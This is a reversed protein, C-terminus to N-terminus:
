GQSVLLADLGIGRGSLSTVYSASSFQPLFIFKIIEHASVHNLDAPNKIGKEIMKSKIMEPNIGRGDDQLM